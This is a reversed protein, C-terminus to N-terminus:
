FDDYRCFDLSIGFSVNATFHNKSELQDKIECDEPPDYTKGPFLMGWGYGIGGSLEFVLAKIGINFNFVNLSMKKNKSSYHNFAGEEVKANFRYNLYDLDFFFYSSTLSHKPEGFLGVLRVRGGIIGLPKPTFNMIRNGKGTYLNIKPNLYYDETNAPMGLVLGMSGLADNIPGVVGIFGIHYPQVFASTTKLGSIYQYQYNYNITAGYFESMSFEISQAFTNEISFVIALFCFIKKM